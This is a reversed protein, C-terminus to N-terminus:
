EFLACLAAFVSACTKLPCDCKRMCESSQLFKTSPGQAHLQPSIAGRLCELKIRLVYSDVYTYPRPSSILYEGLLAITNMVLQPKTNCLSMFVAFSYQEFYRDWLIEKQVACTEAILNM